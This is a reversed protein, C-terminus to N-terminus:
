SIEHYISSKVEANHFNSVLPNNPKKHYVSAKAESIIQASTKGSSTNGLLPDLSGRGNVMNHNNRRYFM